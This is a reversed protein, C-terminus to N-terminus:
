KVIFKFKFTRGKSDTLQLMYLGPVVNRMHLSSTQSPFMIQEKYISRGIADWMEANVPEGDAAAQKLIFNGDNPNPFLIYQQGDNAKAVVQNPHAPNPASKRMAASDFVVTSDCNDPFIRLTDFVVDYLARARYVVRGATIPCLNSMAEINTSDTGSMQQGLYNIYIQYYNRYNVVMNDATTDDAMQAGTYPDNQANAMSDVSFNNLINQADATDSVALFSDIQTFLAYRSNRAMNKFSTLLASTDAIATDRLMAEWLTFQANWSHPTTWYSYPINNQAVLGAAGSGSGTPSSCYFPFMPASSVSLGNGTGGTIGTSVNCGYIHGCVPPSAYNNTPDEGTAVLLPSSTPYVGAQTYTQYHSGSWSFGGTGLWVNQCQGGLTGDSQAGIIGGLVFGKGNNTMNNHLWTSKVSTGDFVFGRGVNTVNNCTTVYYAGGSALVGYLSDSTYGTSTGAINNLTAHCGYCNSQSIGSQKRGSPYVLMNVTNQNSTTVEVPNNIYIGNYADTIVNQDTNLETTPSAGAYSVYGITNEMWIAKDVYATGLASAPNMKARIINGNITVQGPYGFVGYPSSLSGPAMVAIGNAVNVITNNSLNITDWWPTQVYYGYTSSTIGSANSQTTTIHSNTGTVDSYNLSYVGYTCDWFWNPSNVVLGGVGTTGQVVALKYENGNNAVTYIGMGASAPIPLGSIRGIHAFDNNMSIVNANVAAIGTNLQDFVNTLFSSFGNPAGIQIGKYTPTTGTGVNNLSIGVVPEAGNYVAAVSYTCVSYPAIYPSTTTGATRLSTSSPWVAPWSSSYTALNRSTIVTSRIIFPYTSGTFTAPHYGVIKIATDNRNFVADYCAVFYGASPTKPNEIDIAAIADEILASHGSGDAQLVVSGTTIAGSLPIIGHWMSGCSYIHAGSVTLLSGTDVYIHVGPAVLVVSSTFNIPGKVTVDNGIYYNGTGTSTDVTGDIGIQTYTGGFLHCPGCSGATDLVSITKSVVCGDSLKYKILVTGAGTGTVIGSSSGVTAILTGASSWAGGTTADSLTITSGKCMGYPGTIGPPLADVTVTKTVYCGASLIYTITVPGPTLGTVIGTAPIVSATSASSSTWTGGVTVDSLTDTNGICLLASGTIGTPVPHVTVAVSVSCGLLSTYTISTTGISLGMLLGTASGISAVGSGGTWTGGSTLDMLHATDGLCITTTGGISAPAATVTFAKTVYCGLVTYTVTTTGAAIGTATGTVPNVTAITTSEMSWTGSPTADHLTNSMGICVPVDTTIAAPLASVTVLISMSCSGATYTMSVTGSTVPTVIGSSSGITAISSSGSTWVGGTTSDSLTTTSGICVHASGTIHTATAIVTVTKTLYCGTSLTYSITASGAALGSVIGTTSGIFAVSPSSSSWTGSSGSLDGLPLTSGICLSSAGTIANPLPNVTVVVTRMCGTPLKYTIAAVDLVPSSAGTVIGSGSGVTAVATSGSSWTGGSTSDTLTITSGVCVPLDGTIHSPLPNVTVNITRYCGTSLTYSIVVTGASIGNVIGTTGVTGVAINSSSWTGGAPLAGFFASPPSVCLSGPGAISSPTPNVTVPATSYCGGPLRYTITATGSGFGTVIGSGSGVMAVVGASTSWVGGSSIDALTITSGVCVPGSGTISAPMPNVTVHVSSYCGSPVTYDIQVTGLAVSTVIGSASGVTAITPDSSVWTGGTTADTLTSTQGLCIATGGSIAAVATVTVPMTLYAFGCANTDTYTVTAVGGSVGTINDFYLGSAPSGIAVIATNSSTWTGSFTTLDSGYYAIEKTGGGSPTVTVEAPSALQM